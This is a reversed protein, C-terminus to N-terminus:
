CVTYAGMQFIECMTDVRRWQPLWLVSRYLVCFWRRTGRREDFWLRFSCNPWHEFKIFCWVSNSGPSGERGDKKLVFFLMLRLSIPKPNPPRNSKRKRLQGLLNETLHIRYKAIGGRTNPRLNLRPVLSMDWARLAEASTLSSFYVSSFSPQDSTNM